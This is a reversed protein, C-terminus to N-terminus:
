FSCEIWECFFVGIPSVQSPRRPGRCGDAWRGSFRERVSRDVARDADRGQKVIRRGNRKAPCIIVDVPQGTAAHRQVLKPVVALGRIFLQELLESGIQNLVGLEVAAEIASKGASHDCDLSMEKGAREECKFGSDRLLYSRLGSIPAEFQWPLVLCRVCAANGKFVM